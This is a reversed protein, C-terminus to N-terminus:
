RTDTVTAAGSAGGADSAEVTLVYAMDPTGFGARNRRFSEYNEGSGTYTIAGTSSIAFKNDTNGETISYTVTGGGPDTASVTGLSVPSASGDDNEALEFFYYGAGFAPARNADTIASAESGAAVGLSTTLANVLVDYLTGPTLGTIQYSTTSALFSASGTRSGRLYTQSRTKWQVSYGAFTVGTPRAGRCM